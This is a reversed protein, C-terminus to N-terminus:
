GVTCYWRGLVTSGWCDANKLTTVVLPAGAAAAVGNSVIVDTALFPFVNISNATNNVIIINMAADLNTPPGIGTISPMKVGDPGVTSTTVFTAGATIQYSTVQTGSPTATVNQDTSVAAIGVQVINRQDTSTRGAIQIALATTGLAALAFIAGAAVSNLYRKM